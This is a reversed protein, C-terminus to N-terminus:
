VVKVKARKARRMCRVFFTLFIISSVAGVIRWTDWYNYSAPEHPLPKVGLVEFVQAYTLNKNIEDVPKFFRGDCLKLYTADGPSMFARDVVIYKVHYKLAVQHLQTSNKGWKVLDDFVFPDTGVNLAGQDFGGLVQMVEPCFANLWQSGRYHSGYMVYVRYSQNVHNRLWISTKYEDSNLYTNDVVALHSYVPLYYILLCSVLALAIATPLTERLQTMRRAKLTILTPFEKVFYGGLFVLSLAILLLLRVSQIGLLYAVLVTLLLWALLMGGRSDRRFLVMVGGLLGLLAIPSQPAPMWDPPILWLIIAEIPLPTGGGKAFYGSVGYPLVAPIYWWLVLGLVGLMCVKLVEITREPIYYREPEEEHPALMGRIVLFPVLFILLDFASFMSSLLSYSILVTSLILDCRRGRTIARDVFLLAFPVLATGFLRCTEWYHGQFTVVNVHTVSWALGAYFGAAWSNLYRKIFLFVGICWLTYFAFCLWYYSLLLNGTVLAVVYPILTSLPPYFRLLQYGFYWSKTYFVFRSLLMKIKAIYFAMTADAYSRPYGEHLTNKLLLYCV